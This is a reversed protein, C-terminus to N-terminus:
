TFLLKSEDKSIGHDKTEDKRQALSKSDRVVIQAQKARKQM